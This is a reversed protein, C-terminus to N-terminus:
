LDCNGIYQWKTALKNDSSIGGTYKYGDEVTMNKNMPNKCIIMNGVTENDKLDITNIQAPSNLSKKYITIKSDKPKTFDFIKKNFTILSKDIYENTKYNYFSQCQPKEFVYSENIINGSNDKCKSEYGTCRNLEASEKVNTLNNNTNNDKYCLISGELLDIFRKCESKIDNYVGTIFNNDDKMKDNIVNKYSYGIINGNEDTDNTKITDWINSSVIRDYINNDKKMCSIQCKDFKEENPVVIINNNKDYCM